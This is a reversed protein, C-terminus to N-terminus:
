PLRPGQPFSPLRLRHNHLFSHTHSLVGLFMLLHHVDLHPRPYFQGIPTPIRSPAFPIVPSPQRPIFAPTIPSCPVGVRLLGGLQPRPAFEGLNARLQTVRLPLPPQCPTFSPIDSHLQPSEVASPRPAFSPASPRLQPPEVSSQGLSPTFSPATASLQPGPTAVSPKPAKTPDGLNITEGTILDHTSVIINGRVGLRTTSYPTRIKYVGRRQPRTALVKACHPDLLDPGADVGMDSSEYAAEPAIKAFYDADQPLNCTPVIDSPPTNDIDLPVITTVELDLVPIPPPVSATLQSELELIRADKEEILAYLDDSWATAEDIRAQGDHRAQIFGAIANHLEKDKDALQINLEVIQNDSAELRTRTAALEDDRDRLDKTLEEVKRELTIQRSLEAQRREEASRVILLSAAITNRLTSDRADAEIILNSIKNELEKVKDHAVGLEIDKVEVENGLSDVRGELEKQNAQAAAKFVGFGDQIAQLKTLGVAREERGSRAAQLLTVITNQLTACQTDVENTLNNTRAESEALAADKFQVENELTIIRGELAVEKVRTAEKFAGFGDRLDQLEGETEGLREKLDETELKWGNQTEQLEMQMGGLEHHLGAIEGDRVEIDARAQEREDVVQKRLGSIEEDKQQIEAEQGCVFEEIEILQGDAVELQSKVGVLENNAYELSITLDTCKDTLFAQVAEHADRAHAFEERDKLITRQADVLKEENDKLSSELGTIREKAQALEYDKEELSWKLEAIEAGAAENAESLEKVKVRDKEVQLREKTDDLEAQVCVLRASEEGLAKEVQEKDDKMWLLRGKMGAIELAHAKRVADLERCEDRLATLLETEVAYMMDKHNKLVEVDAEKDIVEAELATINTRADGLEKELDEIRLKYASREQDTRRPAHKHALVVRGQEIQTELSAIKEDAAVNDELLELNMRCIRQAEISLPVPQPTPRGFALSAELRDKFPMFGMGQIKKLLSPDSHTSM